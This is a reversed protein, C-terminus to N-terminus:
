GSLDDSELYILARTRIRGVHPSDLVTAKSIALDPVGPFDIFRPILMLAPEIEVVQDFSPAGAIRHVLFLEEKDGFVLGRYSQPHPTM